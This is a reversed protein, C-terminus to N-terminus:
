SERRGHSRGGGGYRAPVGREHIRHVGRQSGCGEPVLSRWIPLETATASAAHAQPLAGALSLVQTHSKHTRHQSPPFPPLLGLRSGSFRTTVLDFAHKLTLVHKNTGGAQLRGRSVVAHDLNPAAHSPDSSFIPSPTLIM